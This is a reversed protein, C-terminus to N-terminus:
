THAIRDKNSNVDDHDGSPPDILSSFVKSYHNEFHLGGFSMMQLSPFKKSIFDM